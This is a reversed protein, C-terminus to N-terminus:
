FNTCYSCKAILFYLDVILFFSYSLTANYAFDLDFLMSTKIELNKIAETKTM